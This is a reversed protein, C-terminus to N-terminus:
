LESGGCYFLLAKQRKVDVINAAVFYMELQELWTEWTQAMSTSTIDIVLPEPTRLSLDAM